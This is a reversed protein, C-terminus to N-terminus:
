NLPTFNIDKIATSYPSRAPFFLVRYPINLPTLFTYTRLADSYFSVAGNYIKFKLFTTSLFPITNPRTYVLNSVGSTGDYLFWNGQFQRWEYLCNTSTTSAICVQAINAADSVAYPGAVPSVINYTFSAEYNNCSYINLTRGFDNVAGGVPKSFSNAFKTVSGTPVWQTADNPDPYTADGSALQNPCFGVPRLITLEINRPNVDFTATTGPNYEFTIRVEINPWRCTGTAPCVPRWRVDARLPCNPDGAGPNPVFTNCTNLGKLSFGRTPNTPDYFPAPVTTNSSDIIVLQPWNPTTVVSSCDAASLDQNKLLCAMGPQNAQVIFNWSQPNQIASILSQRISNISTSILTSQQNRVVINISSLAFMMSLGLVAVCVVAEIMTFGNNSKFNLKKDSSNQM